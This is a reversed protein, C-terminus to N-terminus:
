EDEIGMNKYTENLAEVDDTIILLKDNVKLKTNGRPVFYHDGRKVMVALTKDPLALNMM